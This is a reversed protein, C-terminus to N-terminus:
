AAMRPLLEDPVNFFRQMGRFPIPRDFVAFKDKEFAYRGSTFDGCEYDDAREKTWDSEGDLEKDFICDTPRCNTVNVMGIIAGTPLDMAWHGGFEDDLIGRLRTNPEIDKVIKKAAHVLLWGRCNTPWGRTEHRKIPSCWLSAWPQWLSLARM